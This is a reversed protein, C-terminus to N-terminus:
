LGLRWYSIDHTVTAMAGDKDARHDDNDLYSYGARTHALATFWVDVAGRSRVEKYLSLTVTEITAMQLMQCYFLQICKLGM